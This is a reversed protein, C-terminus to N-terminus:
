VNACPWWDAQHDLGCTKLVADPYAVRCRHSSSFSSTGNLHMCGELPYVMMAVKNGKDHHARSVTMLQKVTGTAGMVYDM